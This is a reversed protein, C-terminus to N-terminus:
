FRDSVMSDKLITCYTNAKMKHIRIRALSDVVVPPCAFLRFVVCVCTFLFKVSPIDNDIKSHMLKGVTSLCSNPLRLLGLHQSPRQSFFNISSGFAIDKTLM